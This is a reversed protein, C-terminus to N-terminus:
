NHRYLYQWSSYIKMNKRRWVKKLTTFSILINDYSAFTLIYFARLYYTLFAKPLSLLIDWSVAFWVEMEFDYCYFM